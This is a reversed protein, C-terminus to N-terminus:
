SLNPILYLEKMRFVSLIVDKGSDTIYYKYRKAVKKLIGHLRLNKIIRSIQGPKKNKLKRRIDKNRFGNINFEGLMITKLLAEDDKSFFNIGRYSRNNEVVKETVRDLKKREVSHEEFASIYEIYRNNAMFMKNSIDNMYFIDKPASAYKMELSGDRHHVQRYIFFKSVDNSTTEIRLIQGFKDYMKISNKGLFHKICTGELLVRYKSGAEENFAKTFRKGLFTAINNVKVTHVATKTIDEYIGALAERSKFIIDTSYEIQMISWHHHSSFRGHVPCYLKAYYELRAKLQQTDISNALEQTREYNGIYDFSNDLMHYKIGAKDLKKALINHGNCYFQLGFPAYTAIRLYCLGFEEDMFYFYYHKCKGPRYRLFSKGTKKDRWPYYTPCGEVASLICILGPSDGRIELYKRVENEKSIKYSNLAKVPINNEKAFNAVYVNYEDRLDSAFKVYDFIKIKNSYLYSTMGDKYSIGPLNGRIIIRDNVSIVGAIENKHNTLINNKM